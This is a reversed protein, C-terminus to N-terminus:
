FETVEGGKIPRRNKTNIDLTYGPEIMGSRTYGRDEWYGGEEQGIFEIKGLWKCSKYGWLNPIVMRLPGGYETEIPDGNVGYALLVRPNGLDKSLVATSYGEGVSTFRVYNTKADILIQKLFNNWKIGEWDARVSWGSVSTLRCNVGSKPMALIEQWSFYREEKVLGGVSLLYSQLDIVPMGGAKFAPVGLDKLISM